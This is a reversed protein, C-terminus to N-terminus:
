DHARLKKLVEARFTAAAEWVIRHDLIRPVLTEVSIACEAVAELEQLELGFMRCVHRADKVIGTGCEPCWDETEHGFRKLYQRFCGHGSLASPGPRSSRDVPRRPLPQETLPVQGAIVLVADESITRFASAIRVACLRYTAEVGRMYTKVKAAESSVPAAYLIHSTVVSSLLM